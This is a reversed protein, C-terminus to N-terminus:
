MGEEDSSDSEVEALDPMKKEINNKGQLLAGFTAFLTCVCPIRSVFWLLDIYM